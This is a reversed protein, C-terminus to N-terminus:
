SPNIPLVIIVAQGPAFLFCLYSVSNSVKVLFIYKLLIKINKAKFVYKNLVHLHTNQFAPM